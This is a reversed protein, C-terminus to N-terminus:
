VGNLFSGYETSFYPSYLLIIYFFFLKVEELDVHAETDERTAVEVGESAELMAEQLLRVIIVLELAVLLGLLVGGDLCFLM